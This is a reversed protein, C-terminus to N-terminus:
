KVSLYNYDKLLTELFEFPDLSTEIKLHNKIKESAVAALNFDGKRRATDLINKVANIDSDSLNMIQPFVPVYNDAVEVFVSEEMKGRAKTSVLITHALIDGLRQSKKSAAVLIIDAILLLFSGLLFIRLEKNLFVSVNLFMISVIAWDGARIVARIIFQSISPRGGDESVVRIGLVMKGFSQGNLFIECLPHYFFIPLPLLLLIIRLNTSDDFFDSASVSTKLIEFAIVLYLIQLIVDIVWAFLRRHFEAMEFELDINFSTPVRIVSM